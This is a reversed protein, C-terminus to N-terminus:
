KSLTSSASHQQLLYRYYYRNRAATNTNRSTMQRSTVQVAQQLVEPIRISSPPSVAPSEESPERQSSFPINREDFADIEVFLSENILRLTLLSSARQSRGGEGTGSMEADASKQHQLMSILDLSDGTLMSATKSNRRQFRRKKPSQYASSPKFPTAKNESSSCVTM